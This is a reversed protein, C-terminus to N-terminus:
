PGIRIGAGGPGPRLNFELRTDRWIGSLGLFSGAPLWQHPNSAELDGQTEGHGDHFILNTKYANAAAGVPPEATSHRYGYARPDVQGIFGNGPARSRDLSKSFTTYGGPDNFAGGWAGGVTLDYDPATANDSYRAGDYSFIKNAPVGIRNVTPGYNGPLLESFGGGNNTWSLGFGDGPFGAADASDAVIFMQWRVTNYSVLRGTGANVGSFHNSLFNNAKCLFAGHARLENFRKAVLEESTGDPLTLGFGLAWALPGM